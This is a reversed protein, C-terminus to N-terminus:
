ERNTIRGMLRGGLVAALFMWLLLRAPFCLLMLMTVALPKRIQAGLAAWSGYPRISAASLPFNLAQQM